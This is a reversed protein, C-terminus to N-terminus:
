AAGVAEREDDQGGGRARALDFGRGDIVGEAVLTSSFRFRGRGNAFLEPNRVRDEGGFPRVLWSGGDLFAGARLAVAQERSPRVLAAEFGDEGAMM